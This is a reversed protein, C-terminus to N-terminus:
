VLARLRVGRNLWFKLALAARAFPKAGGVRAFVDQHDLVYVDRWSTYFFYESRGFTDSVISLANRLSKSLLLNRVGLFRSM